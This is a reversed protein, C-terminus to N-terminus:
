LGTPSRQGWRWYVAVLPAFLIITILTLAAAQGPSVNLLQFIFAALTRNQPSQLMTAVTLERWALLALFLWATMLAPRILPLTIFRLTSWTGAGSVHAAEELESHIQIMAANSLRTGFSLQTLAEVVVLLIMTQYLDPLVTIGFIRVQHLYQLSVIVAAFAFIVSPVALPLFAIYDFGLRWRTRLRLVVWSFIVSFVVAITPAALALIVTHWLAPEVEAWGIGNGGLSSPLLTSFNAFTTRRFGAISPPLPYPQTAVWYVMFLPLIVATLLWLGVFGWAAWKWRRLSVLRPRYGKGTIVQYRRARAVVRVYFFSVLLGLVIMILAFAATVGYEPAGSVPNVALYLYTSFVYERGALGIIVPIDFAAVTIATVFLCGGLLGPWILPLTVQRFVQWRGAGCTYAADELGADMARLSAASLVFIVPVLSIGQAWAMGPISVINFHVGISNGLQNLWGIRPDLLYLWGFAVFFGPILIGLTMLTVLVRKGPMDTRTVLWAMPLGFILAVVLTLGAFVATNAAAHLAFSSGFLARFNALSLPGSTGNQQFAVYGVVALLGGILLSPILALIVLPRLRFAGRHRRM